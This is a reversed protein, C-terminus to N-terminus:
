LPGPLKKKVFSKYLNEIIPAGHKLIKPLAISAISSWDDLM